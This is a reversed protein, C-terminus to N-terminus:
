QRHDQPLNAPNSAIVNSAEQQETHRHNGERQQPQCEAGGDHAAKTHDHDIHVV